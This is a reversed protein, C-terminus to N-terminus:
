ALPLQVAFTSGIGEASEVTIKGQHREVLERAIALGLGSGGSERNRAEDARYFREFVHPVAASPIGIGTDHVTLLANSGERTVQVHIRGGPPTYRLGNDVMLVILQRLQEADGKVRLGAGTGVTLELEREHAIPLLSAVADEVVLDLDVPQMTQPTETADGRALSLMSAVLASVRDTERLIERVEPNDPQEGELFEANARIVALPTRLEHSADAVFTRQHEFADRVPALSKGALFWGGIAALLLGGLACVLLGVLLHNLTEQEPATSRAIQVVWFRNGPLDVRKSYIRFQNTGSGVTRHDEGSMVAQQASAQDLGRADDKPGVTANAAEVYVDYPGHNLQDIESMSNIRLAAEARAETLEIGNDIQQLSQERVAAYVAVGLVLLVVALVSVYWATLRIRARTFVSSDTLGASHM